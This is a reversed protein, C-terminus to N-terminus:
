TCAKDCRKRSEKGGQIGRGSLASLQCTLSHPFFASTLFLDSAPCKQAVSIM